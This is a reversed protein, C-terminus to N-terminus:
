RVQAAKAVHGKSSFTVAYREMANGADMVARGDLVLWCHGALEGM